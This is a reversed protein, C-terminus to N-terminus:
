CSKLFWDELFDYNSENIMPFKVNETVYEDVASYMEASFENLFRNDVRLEGKFFGIDNGVSLKHNGGIYHLKGDDFSKNLEIEKGFLVVVLKKLHNDELQVLVDPSAFVRDTEDFEREAWEVRESWIDFYEKAGLKVMKVKQEETACDFGPM